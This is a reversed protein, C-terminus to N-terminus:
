GGARSNEKLVVSEREPICTLAATEGSPVAKELLFPTDSKASFDKANRWIEPRDPSRREKCQWVKLARLSQKTEGVGLICEALGFGLACETEGFGLACETEGFGLICEALGFGLARETM